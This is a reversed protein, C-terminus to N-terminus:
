DRRHGRGLSRSRCHRNEHAYERYAHSVNHSRRRHRMGVNNDKSPKACTTYPTRGRRTARRVSNYLRADLPRYLTRDSGPMERGDAGIGSYSKQRWDKFEVGSIRVQELRGEEYREPTISNQRSHTVPTEDIIFLDKHGLKIAWLYDLGWGNGLETAMDFTPLLEALVDVRFCPAMMEVYSVRRAAFETNRVTFPFSFFSDETLAPQALKANYKAVRDFFRSWTGPMAFLDDDALLIYKYERWNPWEKLLERLGIWKLGPRVEGIFTTAASTPREVYGPMNNIDNIAAPVGPRAKYPSVYLDWNRAPDMDLWLPYMSPRAGHTRVIILNDM